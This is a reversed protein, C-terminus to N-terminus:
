LDGFREEGTDRIPAPFIAGRNFDVLTRLMLTVEHPIIKEELLFDAVVEIEIALFDSFHSYVKKFPTRRWTSDYAYIPPDEGESTRIFCFCDDQYLFFVFADDPLSHRCAHEKLM